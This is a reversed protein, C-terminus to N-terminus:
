CKKLYVYDDSGSDKYAEYVMVENGATDQETFLHNVKVPWDEPSMDPFLGDLVAEAAKQVTDTPKVDIVWPHFQLDALTHPTSM